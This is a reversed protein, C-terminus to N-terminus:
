RQPAMAMGVGVDEASLGPLRVASQRLKDLVEAASFKGNEQMLKQAWRAAVGAVHPTAMSTGSMALLGGDKCASVVDVGPAAIGAGTNSFGALRYPQAADGTAGLAAVSLFDEAAGPFANTVVYRPTGYRDSTNGAAGVVLVSRGFFAGAKLFAGLRDFYRVNDILLRMARSTAEIEHLGQKVLRQRYGVLNLGVSMSIINAENSVAWNIADVLTATTSEVREIIKGILVRPVQPAVGIRYGDVPRGFITGACHTGHGNKDTVDKEASGTFNKPVIEIGEFAPHQAIGTDLLAVTVGRGAFASHDAGVAPVGWAVEARGHPLFPAGSDSQQAILEIPMEEAKALTTNDRALDRSDRETVDEVVAEVEDDASVPVASGDTGGARRRRLVLVKM